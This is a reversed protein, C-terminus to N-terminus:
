NQVNPWVKEEEPAKFPTLVGIEEIAEVFAKVRIIDESRGTNVLELRREAIKPDKPLKKQIDALAKEEAIKKAGDQGHMIREKIKELYHVTRIEVPFKINRWKPLSKVSEQMEYYQYPARHPGAIIIEKTGFNICISTKQNGSMKEVIENLPCEGYGEYWVRARVFGKAQIYRSIYRPELPEEGEALPQNSPEPKIEEKIEGSILITGPLVTDGDKVLAQGNLVLVERILGAKGAVIHAPGTSPTETVLKREAIEIVVRTGRVYVGAWAVSPNKERITKEIQKADLDWKATGPTLGVEAAIKKIEADSLKENGTVNIFWVFSSLFYLTVLFGLGGIVLLKRRKLRNLVFPFGRREIISFGSQTARAIHRLPRIDSIRVKVRVKNEGVRTIDWLFIGRSAAMNVFKELFEGRVILSVHGMLFSFLRLLVM